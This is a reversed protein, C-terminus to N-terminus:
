TIRFQMEYSLTTIRFEADTERSTGTPKIKTPAHAAPWHTSIEIAGIEELLQRTKAVLEVHRNKFIIPDAIALTPTPDTAYIDNTTWGDLPPTDNGLQILYYQTIAGSIVDIPTSTINWVVTDMRWMYYLPTVGDVDYLTYVPAGDASNGTRIYTGNVASLGAGSVIYSDVPIPTPADIGVRPTRIEIEFTGAYNDYEGAANQHENSIPGGTDLEFRVCEDPLGGEDIDDAIRLEMDSASFLSKFGSELGGEFNYNQINM